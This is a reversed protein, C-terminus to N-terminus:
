AHFAQWQAKKTPIGEMLNRVATTRAIRTQQRLMKNLLIFPFREPFRVSASVAGIALLRPGIM